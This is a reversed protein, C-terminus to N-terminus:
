RLFCTPLRSMIMLTRYNTRQSTLVAASSSGRRTLSGAGPVRTPKLRGKGFWRMWWWTLTGKEAQGAGVFVFRQDLLSREILRLVSYLGALTVAATGQIDDNFVRAKDRYENLFAFLLGIALVKSNSLPM